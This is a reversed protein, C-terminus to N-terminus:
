IQPELMSIVLVELYMHEYLGEQSGKTDRGKDKDKGVLLKKFKKSVRNRGKGEFQGGLWKQLNTIHEELVEKHVHLCM